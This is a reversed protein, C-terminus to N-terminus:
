RKVIPKGRPAALNNKVRSFHFVAYPIDRTKGKHWAGAKIKLELRKQEKRIEIVRDDAVGSLGAFINRYPFFLIMAQGPNEWKVTDGPKVKLAHLTWLAASQSPLAILKVKAKPPM